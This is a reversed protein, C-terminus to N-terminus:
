RNPNTAKMWLALTRSGSQSIKNPNLMKSVVNCKAKVFYEIGDARVVILCSASPIRM